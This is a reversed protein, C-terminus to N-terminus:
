AWERLAALEYWTQMYGGVGGQLFLGDEARIWVDYPPHQSSMGSTGDDVYQFHRAQFTGVPVTIAEDGLYVADIQVPSLFPPTAGRHDPSPLYLNLKRKEGKKWGPKHLLYGDGVIPHTGFGDLPADLAVRQSVRGISPGYSECEVFDDGFRFWGSGMFKDGVTLRVTCDMPLGREDLSYCVDRMVTPDPEEIECRARITVKDDHHRTFTFWERGRAQGMREPKKSTYAIEGMLTKHRM